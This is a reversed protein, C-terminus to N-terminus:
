IFDHKDHDASSELYPVWPQSVILEWPLLGQTDPTGELLPVLLVVTVHIFGFNSITKYRTFVRFNLSISYM